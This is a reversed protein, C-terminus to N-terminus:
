GGASTLLGSDRVLRGATEVDMAEGSRGWVSARPRWLELEASPRAPVQRLLERHERELRRHERLLRSYAELLRLYTSRLTRGPLRQASHRGM